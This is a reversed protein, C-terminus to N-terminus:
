TTSFDSLPGIKDPDIPLTTLYMMPVLNSTVIRHDIQHSTPAFGVVRALGAPNRRIWDVRRLHKDLEDKEKGEFRRCVEAMEAVTRAPQLRKCEIACVRTDAKWALVDIDGLEAPAGLETMPVRQRVIWRQQRLEAATEREFAHGLQDNVRGIYGKMQKSAFFDQPLQGNQIKRLLHEYGIRLMNVSYLVTEEDGEGFVLIPRVVVSLRRSYRWPQIDRTSCNSPPTEWNPRHFLGFANLFAECTENLYGCKSILRSKVNLVTTEVVLEDTEVALDLLDRLGRAARAPTLGYEDQFAGILDRPFTSGPEEQEEREDKSYRLPYENAAELLQAQNYASLLPNRVSQMFRYDMAYEGNAFLGIGPEVLRNHVADSCSATNLLNLVTALLEDAQWTSLPRGGETPCECIAMEMLSRVALGASAREVERDQAVALGDEHLALIARSTLAWDDRDFAIAEHRALLERLVSSRDLGQLTDKIRNWLTAVLRKLFRNCGAHSDLQHSEESINLSNCLGIHVFRRDLEPIAQFGRCKQKRMHDIPNSSEGTHLIRLGPNGAVSETLVDLMRRGVERTGQHLQILCRAVSRVLLWEGINEAQRFNRLFEPELRVVARGAHTDVAIDPETPNELPSTDTLRDFTLVRSFDLRVEIVGDRKTWGRKGMQWLLKEYLDIFGDWLGRALEFREPEGPRVFAMLWSVNKATEIAGVILGAELRAGSRYVPKDRQSPFLSGGYLRTVPAHAGHLTPLTHSDQLTRVEKRVPLACDNLVCVMSDPSMPIEPPIPAKEPDRWHCYLVYDSASLFRLGSSEVRAKQRIFKLYRTVPQDYESTLMHFDSVDMGSFHWDSPVVEFAVSLGSGLGANVLLTFGETFGAQSRCWEAVEVTHQRLSDIMGGPLENAGAFGQSEICDVREHIVLTHLYKDLDCKVVFSHFPSLQGKAKPADRLCTQNLETCVKSEADYAQHDSVARAFTDLQGSKRLEEVVFRRIAASTAQPLALILESGVRVLPRKELSTNCISQTGLVEKDADNFVFPSLDAPSIGLAKLKRQSFRVAAAAKRLTDGPPLQIQGSPSSPEYHWRNLSRREAVHDSLMLLAVIPRLLSHSRGSLQWNLLIDFVVQAFYDSADLCSQFVRRNGEPTDLNAVFVDEAPDEIIRAQTKDLLSNLWHDVDTWKAKRKGHCHAVALQVATEVRISNAQLTPITLLGALQSLASQLDFRELSNKLSQFEPLNLEFVM